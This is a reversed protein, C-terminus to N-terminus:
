EAAAGLFITEVKDGKFSFLIGGYVTGVTIMTQDTTSEDIMGKYMQTVEAYSSGIGIGRTTKYTCPAKATISFVNRTQEPKRAESIMNLVLGKRKYDWDEHLMGDAEWLEMIPKHEPQGLKRYIEQYSETLRIDGFQEIDSNSFGPNPNGKHNTDGHITTDITTKVEGTPVGTKKKSNCASFIVLLIFLYNKM